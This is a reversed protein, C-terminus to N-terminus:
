SHLDKDSKAQVIFFTHQKLYKSLYDRIARAHIKGDDWAYAIFFDYGKKNMNRRNENSNM